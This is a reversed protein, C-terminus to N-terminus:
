YRIHVPTEGDIWRDILSQLSEGDVSQSYDSQDTILGHGWEVAGRLRYKKADVSFGGGVHSADRQMSEAFESAGSENKVFNYPDGLNMIIFAKNIGHRELTRRDVWCYEYFDGNCHSPMDGLLYPVWDDTQNFWEPKAVSKQYDDRWIGDLILRPTRYSAFLDLNLIIGYVGASTGALVIDEAESLSLSHEEVISSMIARGMFPVQEGNIENRHSGGYLDSSCYHLWVVNYGHRHFQHAIASDRISRTGSASRAPSKMEDARREFSSAPWGSGGGPLQILWKKSSNRAIWYNAISGDNCVAKADQVNQLEFYADQALAHNGLALLGLLAVPILRM